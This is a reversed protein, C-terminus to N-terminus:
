WSARAPVVAVDPGALRPPCVRLLDDEFPLMDEDTSGVGSVGGPDLSPMPPYFNAPGEAWLRTPDQSPTDTLLPLMLLM